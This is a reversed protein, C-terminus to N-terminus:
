SRGGLRGSNTKRQMAISDPDIGLTRRWFERLESLDQDAHYQISFTLPKRSLARLWGTALV